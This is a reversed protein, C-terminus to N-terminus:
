LFFPEVGPKLTYQRLINSMRQDSKMRAGEDTQMKRQHRKNM